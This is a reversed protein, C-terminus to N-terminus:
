FINLTKTVDTATMKEDDSFYDTWGAFPTGSILRRIETVEEEIKSLKAAVRLNNAYNVAELCTRTFNCGNSINTKIHRIFKEPDAKFNPVPRIMDNNIAVQYGDTLAQEQADLEYISWACGMDSYELVLKVNLSGKEIPKVM